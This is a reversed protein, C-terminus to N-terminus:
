VPVSLQVWVKGMFVWSEWTFAWLIPLVVGASVSFELAGRKHGLACWSWLIGAEKAAAKGQPTQMEYKYICAISQPKLTSHQSDCCTSLEVPFPEMPPDGVSGWVGM